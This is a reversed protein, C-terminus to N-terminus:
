LSAAQPLTSSGGVHKKMFFSGAAVNFVFFKMKAIFFPAQPLVSSPVRLKDYTKIHKFM